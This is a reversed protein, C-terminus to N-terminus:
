NIRRVIFRFADALVAEEAYVLPNGYADQDLDQLFMMPTGAPVGLKEALVEDAHIPKLETLAAGFTIGCQETVFRGISFDQTPVLSLFKPALEPALYDKTYAVPQEDALRIRTCCVVSSGEAVRLKAALIGKAEVLDRQFLSMGPKKGSDIIMQTISVCNNLTNHIDSYDFCLFTGRGQVSYIIGENKLANLAERLALRSLGLEESFEAETPFQDGAKLEKKAIYEVIENKATSYGPM